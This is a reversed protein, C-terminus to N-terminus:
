IRKLAPMIIKLLVSTVIGAIVGAIILLPLYAWLGMSTYIISIAIFQGINHFVSGAISIILYSVKEKFVVMIILMIIISLIGGFLSLFAATAGRTILVFGSKLVAISFAQGANVFFLAYMVAINSLGLKVGPVPIALTPLANEIISLVIALAFLLGTLVIKRTNKINKGDM